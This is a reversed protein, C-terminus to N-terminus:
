PDRWDCVHVGWIRRAHAHVHELVDPTDWLHWADFVIGMPLGVEDLLSVADPLTDVITFEDRASAHIPELAVRVGAEEGARAVARLGEVVIRRAEGPDRSGVP